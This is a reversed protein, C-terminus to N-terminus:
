WNVGDRQFADITTAVDLSNLSLFKIMANFAIVASFATILVAPPPSM